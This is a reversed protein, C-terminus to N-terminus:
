LPLDRKRFLWVALGFSVLGVAALVVVSITLDANGKVIESPEYLSFLSARRVWDLKDSFKGLLDMSFLIFVILGSVGRARKEDNALSSVLFSIGGIAFFLLFVVVNMQLFRDVHFEYESGPVM